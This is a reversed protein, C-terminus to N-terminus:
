TPTADSGAPSAANAAEAVTTLLDDIEFPKGLVMLNLSPPPILTQFITSDTSASILIYRHRQTAPEDDAIAHLVQNGDLGPMRWDVLVVLPEPHTRLQELGSLGDTAEYVQYGEDELVMRIGKRTSDDDDIILVPVPAPIEM